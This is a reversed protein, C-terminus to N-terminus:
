SFFRGGQKEKKLTSIAGICEARHCKTYRCKACCVKAYQCDFSCAFQSVAIGQTTNQLTDNPQIDHRQQVFGSKAKSTVKPEQRRNGIM